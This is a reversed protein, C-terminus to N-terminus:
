KNKAKKKNKTLFPTRPADMMEKKDLMKGIRSTKSMKKKKAKMTALRKLAGPTKKDDGSKMGYFWNKMQADRDKPKMKDM